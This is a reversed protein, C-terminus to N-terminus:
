NKREWPPVAGFSEVLFDIFTSIRPPLYRRQPYLAHLPTQDAVQWEELLPVLRGDRIAATGTMGEYTEALRLALVLRSTDMMRRLARQEELVTLVAEGSLGSAQAPDPVWPSEGVADWAGVPELPPLEALLKPLDTAM